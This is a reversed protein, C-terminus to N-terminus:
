KKVRELYEGSRSDVVISDGNNVFMPVNITLGTELTAPKNGGTVTDGKFSPPTDVVKLEVSKPLEVGVVKGEYFELDLELNDTLFNVSEGLFDGPVYIQEFSELDMFVYNEGDQYLFQAKKDDYIVREFKEGSRFSNEVISGTDLNKLKTKIVAGGRGMKHHQYDIVEWIGDQWKIKMGSYFDTTDVVQAMCNEDERFKSFYNDFTPYLM